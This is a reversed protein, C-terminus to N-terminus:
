LINLGYALDNGKILKRLAEREAPQEPINEVVPTVVMMGDDSQINKTQFLSLVQEFADNMMFSESINQIRKLTAPRLVDDNELVLLMTEDNGFFEGIKKNNIKSLMTDPMYSELDSNIKTNTLPIIAALLVIGTLLLVWWRHRIIFLSTKIKKM